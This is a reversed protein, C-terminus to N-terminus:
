TPRRNAMLDRRYVMKRRSRKFLRHRFQLLQAGLGHLFLIPPGEGIDVYHLLNGDIDVFRGAPPVRREAEAAIRRTAYAFYGAVLGAASLAAVALWVLLELVTARLRVVGGSAALKPRIAPSPFRGGGQRFWPVPRCSRGPRKVAARRTAM